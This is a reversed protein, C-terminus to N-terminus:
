DNQAKRIKQNKCKEFKSVEKRMNKNTNQFIFLGLFGSLFHSFAPVPLMIFVSICIKTPAHPPLPVM